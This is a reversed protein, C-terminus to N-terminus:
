FFIQSSFTQPSCGEIGWWTDGNCNYNSFYITNGVPAKAKTMPTWRVEQDATCWRRKSRPVEECTSTLHEFLDPGQVISLLLENYSQHWVLDITLQTNFLKEIFGLEKYYLAWWQFQIKFSNFLRFLSGKTSSVRHATSDYKLFSRKCDQHMQRMKSM